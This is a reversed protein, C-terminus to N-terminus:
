VVGGGATGGRAVAGPGSTPSHPRDADAGVLPLFIDDVLSTLTAPAVPDRTVSPQVERRLLQRLTPACTVTVAASVDSLTKRFQGDVAPHDRRL